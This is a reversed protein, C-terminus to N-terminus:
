LLNQGSDWTSAQTPQNMDFTVTIINILVEVKQVPGKAVGALYTLMEIQDQRDIRTTKGRAMSIELLKKQVMEYTIEKPDILLIKDKPRQVVGTRVSKFKAEEEEETDLLHESGPDNSESDSQSTTLEESETIPNNRRSLM